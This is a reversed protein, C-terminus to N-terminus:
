WVGVSSRQLNDELTLAITYGTRVSVKPSVYFDSGGGIRHAVFRLTGDSGVLTAPIAQVVSHAAGVVLFRERRGDHDIWLAVDSWNHNDVELALQDLPVSAEGPSGGGHSTCALVLTAGASALLWSIAVRGVPM